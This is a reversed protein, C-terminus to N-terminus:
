VHNGCRVGVEVGAAADGGGGEAVERQYESLGRLM